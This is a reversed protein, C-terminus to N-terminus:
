GVRAAEFARAGLGEEDVECVLTKVRRSVTAPWKGPVGGFGTTTQVDVPPLGRGLLLELIGMGIGMGMGMGMGMGVGVAEVKGLDIDITLFCVSKKGKLSANEPAISMSQSPPSGMQSLRLFSTM